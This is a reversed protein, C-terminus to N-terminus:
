VQTDSTIEKRDANQICKDDGRHKSKRGIHGMEKKRIQNDLCYERLSRRSVIFRRMHV